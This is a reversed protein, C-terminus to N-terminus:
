PIIHDPDAEAHVYGFYQGIRGSEM